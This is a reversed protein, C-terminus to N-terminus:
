LSPHRGAAPAGRGATSSAAAVRASPSPPRPPPPRSPQAPPSHRRSQPPRAEQQRQRRQHQQRRHPCTKSPPQSLAPATAATSLYCCRRCCGAGGRKALRCCTLFRDGEKGSQTYLDDKALVPEPCCHPFLNTKFIGNDRLPAAPVGSCPSLLSEAPEATSGSPGADTSSSESCASDDPAFDCV